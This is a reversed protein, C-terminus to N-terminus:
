QPGCAHRFAYWQKFPEIDADPLDLEATYLLPTTM